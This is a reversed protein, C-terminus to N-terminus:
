AGGKLSKMNITGQASLQWLTGGMLQITFGIILRASKYRLSNTQPHESVVLLKHPGRLKGVSGIM